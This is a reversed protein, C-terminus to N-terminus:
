DLAALRGRTCRPLDNIDKFLQVDTFRTQAFMNAVADAQEFGHEVILVGNVNLFRPASTIINELDDLGNGSAILASDPEFRLDGKSLHPDGFEVYPPNAAILDFRDAESISEFWNSQLFAVNDIQNDAANKQALHLAGAQSDVALVDALPHEKALALAIAGSGTGLDLIRLPEQKDLLELAHEVLTETDPRPILVNEDVTLSLTWFDRSGTIYAIPQGAQRKAIADFFSTSHEATAISDGYAILWAMSKATVHQMLVEADIRPTESGAHLLEYGTDILARYCNDAIRPKDAHPM